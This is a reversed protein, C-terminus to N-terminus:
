RLYPPPLIPPRIPKDNTRQMEIESVLLSPAIVSVPVWGSEAGCYGNFVESKNGAAVVKNLSVLPTGVIELGRALTEEGTKADVKYILTPSNRFAQFSFKNTSTEGGQGHRLILGYPKGQEQAMKILEKKLTSFPVSKSSKIITNSMRAIPTNRWDSRGHGNSHDFGEIPSRSLLFNKLIGNEILVVKKGAVGEDDFKYYGNLETGKYVAKTPDDLMSLFPSVVEEGIKDKFTQGEDPNGMREGELRHGVAEHFFVGALSPDLIAPGTYPGLKEATRLATLDDAMKKVGKLIDNKNPLTKKSRAYLNFFNTLKQGDEARTEAYAHLDFYTAGDKILTGETNVLRRTKTSFSIGVVGRTLHRYEKFIAGAEKLIERWQDMDVDWSKPESISVTPPEKSFDDVAPGNSLEYVNKGKKKLYSSLASKYMADTVLWIQAAIAEPDDDLPVRLYFLSTDAGSDTNWLDELKNKSTNDFTYDGVRVQVMGKRQKSNFESMIGGFEAELGVSQIEYVAQSIFYPPEFGPLAITKSRELEAKMTDLLVDKAYASSTITFITIIILCFISYKCFRM